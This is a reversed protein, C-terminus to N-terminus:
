VLLPDTPQTARANNSKHLTQDDGLDHIEDEPENTYRVVREETQPLSASQVTNFHRLIVAQTDKSENYIKQVVQKHRTSAQQRLAELEEKIEEFHGSHPEP